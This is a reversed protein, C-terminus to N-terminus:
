KSEVIELVKETIKMLAKAAPSEPYKILFPEGRDCTEAIRPDIPISGLFHVGMDKAIKEGAGKGFVFFTKGCNPCTFGSMNEIVGIVDVGVKRAFTVAKKVVLLSLESPITVVIAGSLGSVLQAVSLPEDGTGPPLDVYLYDAFGWEVKSLFDRIAAFKLPGRWIVPTDEGPLLFDISVVKINLPGLVPVIGSSTVPFREGHVGLIKPISPGHIDADFVAVKRGMLATAVALNATIFSKGVGGKGSIVMLKYKIKSLKSEIEEVVERGRKAEEAL